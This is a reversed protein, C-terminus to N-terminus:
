IYEKKSILKKIYEQCTYRGGHNLFGTLIYREGSKIPKGCHRNQGSFLLCDGKELKYLKKNKDFYTGGGDYDNNLSVIFSFESGDRHYKLDTQGNMHYKAVFMENIGLYKKNVKFMKTLKKFLIDKVKKEVYNYNEWTNMFKNDTTPYKNHRKCTWGHMDAYDIAEKIIKDCQKETLFNKIVIIKKNKKELYLKNCVKKIDNNLNGFSERKIFKYSILLFILFLFLFIKNFM